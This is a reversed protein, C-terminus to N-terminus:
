QLRCHFLQNAAEPLTVATQLLPLPKKKAFAKDQTLWYSSWILVIMIFCVGQYQVCGPERHSKLTLQQMETVGLITCFCFITM